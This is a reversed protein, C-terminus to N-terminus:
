KVDGPPPIVIGMEAFLERSIRSSEESEARDALVEAEDHPVQILAPPKSMKRQYLSTVFNVQFSSMEYDIQFAHMLAKDDGALEETILAVGNELVVDWDFAGRLRDNEDWIVSTVREKVEGRVELKLHSLAAQEALARHYDSCGYFCEELNPTSPAHADYFAGVLPADAFWHGGAFTIIGERGDASNLIYHNRHWYRFAEFLQNEATMTANIIGGLVAGRWLESKQPTRVVPTM